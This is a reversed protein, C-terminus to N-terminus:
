LAYERSFVMGAWHFSVLASLRQIKAGCRECAAAHRRAVVTLDPSQTLAGIRKAREVVEDWAERDDPVRDISVSFHAVAAECSREHRLDCSEIRRYRPLDALPRFLIASALRKVVNRPLGEALFEKQSPDGHTLIFDTVVSEIM